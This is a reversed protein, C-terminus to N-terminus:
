RRVSSAIGGINAMESHPVMTMHSSLGSVEGQGRECKRCVVM